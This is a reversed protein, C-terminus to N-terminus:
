KIEELLERAYACTNKPCEQNFGDHHAQHLTQVLWRIGDRALDLKKKQISTEDELETLREALERTARNVAGTAYRDSGHLDQEHTWCLGSASRTRRECSEEREGFRGLRVKGRCQMWDLGPGTPKPASM